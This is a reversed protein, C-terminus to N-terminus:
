VDRLGVCWGVTWANRHGVTRRDGAALPRNRQMLTEAEAEAVSTHSDSPALCLRSTVGCNKCVAGVKSNTGTLWGAVV